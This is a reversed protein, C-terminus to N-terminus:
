KYIAVSSIYDWALLAALSLPHLAYILTYLGPGPHHGPGVLYIHGTVHTGIIHTAILVCLMYSTVEIKLKKFLDTICYQTYMACVTFLVSVKLFRTIIHM